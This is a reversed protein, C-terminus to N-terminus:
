SPILTKIDSDAVSPAIIADTLIQTGIIDFYLTIYGVCMGRCAHKDCLARAGRSIDSFVLMHLHESFVDCADDATISQSRKFCFKSSLYVYILSDSLGLNQGM